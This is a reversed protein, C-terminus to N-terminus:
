STIWIELVKGNEVYFVLGLGPNNELDYQLMENFEEAGMTEPEGDGGMSGLSANGSVTFQHEGADSTDLVDGEDTTIDYTGNIVFTSGDLYADQISAYSDSVSTAITTSGWFSAMDEADGQEDSSDNEDQKEQDAKQDADKDEDQAEEQKEEQDPKEEDQKAQAEEATQEAAADGAGTVEEGASKGCASLSFIFVGALCLILIRKKM